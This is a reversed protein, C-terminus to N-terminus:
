FCWLWCSCVEVILECFVGMFEVSKMLKGNRALMHLVTKGEGEGGGGKGGREVVMEGKREEAATLLKRIVFLSSPFQSICASHLPTYGASNSNKNQKNQKTKNQKTQKTKNQKTTQPKHLNPHSHDVCTDIIIYKFVFRAFLNPLHQLLIDVM